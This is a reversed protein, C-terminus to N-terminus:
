TISGRLHDQRKRAYYSVIFLIGTLIFPFTIMLIIELSVPVSHNRTYNMHFVLPSAVLGFIMLIIGGLLEWKWAIALIATLVFSPVMHIIFDGIQRGLTLRPDYADLAFMSIFLIALMCLVRPLWYFIRVTSKM